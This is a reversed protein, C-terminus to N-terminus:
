VMAGQLLLAENPRHFVKVRSDTAAIKNCIDGTEDTSGDNIMVVEFSNFDQTLISSLCAKIYEAKNYCPIIVSLEM